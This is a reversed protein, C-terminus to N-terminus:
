SLVLSIITKKLNRKRISYIFSIIFLMNIIYYNTPFLGLTTLIDQIFFSTMYKNIIEKRQTSELQFAFSSLLLSYQSVIINNYGKINLCYCYFMKYIFSQTVLFLVSKIIQILSLIFLDKNIIRKKKYLYYLIQLVSIKSYLITLKKLSRCTIRFLDYKCSIDSNHLCKYTNEISLVTNKDVDWLGLKLLFMRYSKKIITKNHYMSNIVNCCYLTYLLQSDSYKYFIKKIYNNKEITTETLLKVIYYNINEM